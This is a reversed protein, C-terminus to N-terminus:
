SNVYYLFGDDTIEIPAYLPSNVDNVVQSSNQEALTSSVQSVMYAQFM